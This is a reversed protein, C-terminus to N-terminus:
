TRAANNMLGALLMIRSVEELLGWQRSDSLAANTDAITDGLPPQVGEHEPLHSCLSAVWHQPMWALVALPLMRMCTYPLRPSALLRSSPAQAHKSLPWM